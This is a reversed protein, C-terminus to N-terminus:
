EWESGIRISFLIRATTGNNKIEKVWHKDLANYIILRNPSPSFDGENFCLEGGWDNNWPGNCFLFAWDMKQLSNLPVSSRVRHIHPAVVYGTTAFMFFSSHIPMEINSTDVENMKDKMKEIIKIIPKGLITGPAVLSGKLNPFALSWSSKNEVRFKINRNPKTNAIHFCRESQQQAINSLWIFEDDPLFNDQVYLM